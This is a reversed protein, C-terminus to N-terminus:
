LECSKQSLLKEKIRDVFSDPALVKVFPGFSLVRIVMEPEDKALYKLHLLYNGDGTREARKEFHAFHLLVRELANRRDIVLLTLERVPSEPPRKVWSGYGEYPECSLIRGLNFERFRCRDALVRFKDDKVSYELGIPYFRAWLQKGWQNRFSIVVPRQERIAALIMRFNHIYAADEYPDGDAYQDFIRYDERTFLPQIDELEPMTIDFLKLRPDDLLAKLWRKELVTLPMTPVHYLVSSLESRLLPWKGSRLAPLITMASESFAEGMVIQQLDQATVGPRSAATLIQAVANYYASYIENFIM